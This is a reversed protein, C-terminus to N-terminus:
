KHSSSTFRLVCQYLFLAKVHEINHQPEPFLGFAHRKVAAPASGIECGEFEIEDSDLDAHLVNRM